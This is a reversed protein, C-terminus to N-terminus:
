IWICAMVHTVLIVALNLKLLDVYESIMQKTYGFWSM